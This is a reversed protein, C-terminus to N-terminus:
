VWESPSKVSAHRDNKKRVPGRVPCRIYVTMRVLRVRPGGLDAPVMALAMAGGSLVTSIYEIRDVCTYWVGGVHTNPQIRMVFFNHLFREPKEFMIIVTLPNLNFDKM